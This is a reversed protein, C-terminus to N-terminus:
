QTVSGEARHARRLIASIGAVLAINVLCQVSWLSEGALRAVTVVEQEELFSSPAGWGTAIWVGALLVLLERKRARVVLRPAVIALAVGALTMDYDYAYPSVFLPAVLAAAILLPMDVRRLAMVALMGMAVVAAVAQAMLAVDASAGFSRAFAFVSVMRHLPYAGERLFGMAEQTAGRFLPMLEPGFVALAAGLTAAFVGLSLAALRWQGTLLAALGVGAAMHPKMAALGLFMGGVARREMVGAAALGLLGAILLGNQGTRLNIMVAPLVMVFAFAAQAPAIRWLALLYLAFSAGAFLAFSMWVPVAGILATLFNFQPPYTYPMFSHTKLVSEQAAFLTDASYAEALRGEWVMHGVLWFTDIDTMVYGDSGADVWLRFATTFWIVLCCVLLLAVTKRSVLGAAKGEDKGTGGVSLGQMTM